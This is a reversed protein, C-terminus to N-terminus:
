RAGSDWSAAFARACLHGTPSYNCGSVAPPILWGPGSWRPRLDRPIRRSATSLADLRLLWRRPLDDHSADGGPVQSRGLRVVRRVAGSRRRVSSVGCYVSRGMTRAWEWAGRPTRRTFESEPSPNHCGCWRLPPLLPGAIPIIGAPGALQPSYLRLRILSVKEAFDCISTAFRHLIPLHVPGRVCPM